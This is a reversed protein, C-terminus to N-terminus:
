RPLFAERFLRLARPLCSRGDPSCEACHAEPGEARAKLSRIGDKKGERAESLIQNASIGFCACLPGDPDKPYAPRNIRQAPVATGWGNFYAIRCGPNVCYYARDGLAPRLDTPVHADLTPPGVEDGLTDCSPCRPEPAEGEKM